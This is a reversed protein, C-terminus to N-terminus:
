QVVQHNLPEDPENFGNKFGSFGNRFHVLKRFDSIDTQRVDAMCVEVFNEKIWHLRLLTRREEEEFNPPPDCSRCGSNDSKM